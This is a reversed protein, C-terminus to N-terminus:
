IFHKEIFLIESREESNIKVVFLGVAIWGGYDVSVTIM